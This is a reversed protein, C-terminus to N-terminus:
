NICKEVLRTGRGKISVKGCVLKEDVVLSPASLVPTYEEIHIWDKLETIAIKLEPYETRLVRQAAVVTQRITYRQASHYGLIKLDIM